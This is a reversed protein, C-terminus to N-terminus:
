TSEQGLVMCPGLFLSVIASIANRAGIGLNRAIIERKSEEPLIGAFFGQV